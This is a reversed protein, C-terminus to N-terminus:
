RFGASGGDGGSDEGAAHDDVPEGVFTLSAADDGIQSNSGGDVEFSSSDDVLAGVSEGVVGDEIELANIGDDPEFAPEVVFIPKTAEVANQTMSAEGVEGPQAWALLPTFAMVLLAYVFLLFVTRVLSKGM